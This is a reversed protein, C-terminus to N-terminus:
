TSSKNLVAGLIYLAPLILGIIASVWPIALGAMVSPLISSVLSAIVLFIGVLILLNAKRPQNRFKIGLIAALLEMVSVAVVMITAGTLGAGLSALGAQALAERLVGGFVGAFLTMCLALAAGIILLISIVLLLVSGKPKSM